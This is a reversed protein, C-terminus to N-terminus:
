RSRSGVVIAGAAGWQALAISEQVVLDLIQDRVNTRVPDLGALALDVGVRGAVYKVLPAYHVILKDRVEPSPHAALHTWLQDIDGVREVM